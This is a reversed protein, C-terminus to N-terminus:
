LFHVIVLRVLWTRQFINKKEMSNWRNNFSIITILATSCKLSYHFCCHALWICCECSSNSQKRLIKISYQNQNMWNWNCDSRRVLRFWVLIQLLNQVIVVNVIFRYCQRHFILIWSVHGVFPALSCCSILISEPSNEIRSNIRGFKIRLVFKTYDRVNWHFFPFM